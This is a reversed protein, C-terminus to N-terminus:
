NAPQISLLLEFKLEQYSAESKTKGVLQTGVRTSTSLVACICCEGSYVDYWRSYSGGLTPLLTLSMPNLDQSQQKEIQTIKPM